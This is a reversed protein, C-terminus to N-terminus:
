EGQGGPPPFYVYRGKGYPEIVDSYVELHQRAVQSWGAHDRIYKAVNTRMQDRLKQDNLVKLIASIYDKDTDCVLGGGSREVLLRFARLNSVVAPTGHAFCQALLGSQGGVEYPLAVCDAASIITDFTHQPFQGRLFVIRGAAPSESLQEVLERQYDLAATTRVKGAVVLVVDPDQKCIEPFFGIARHYGKTARYYGCLTVAKKGELGLKKKAEPVPEVERVGHEIVHINDCEGLYRELVQKQFDEHVIVASSESVIHKLIIQEQQDLEDYVTHLTIAVPINALRYRLILEIVRVGKQAGFLGYEHQIHIIDPTLLSSTHFVDEALSASDPRWVPYVHDGRSGPQSVVFTEHQAKRLASELAQTYTGIGCELPPYTAVFGIRM